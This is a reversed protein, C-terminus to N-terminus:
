KEMSTIIMITMKMVFMEKIMVMMIIKVMILFIPVTIRYLLINKFDCIFRSLVLM